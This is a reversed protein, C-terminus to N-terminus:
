LGLQWRVSTRSREDFPAHTPPVAQSPNIVVGALREVPTADMIANMLGILLPLLRELLIGPDAHFRGPILEEIGWSAQGGLAEVAELLEQADLAPLGVMTRQPDQEKRVAM